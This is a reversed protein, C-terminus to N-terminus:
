ALAKQPPAVLREAEYVHPLGLLVVLACGPPDGPTELHEVM